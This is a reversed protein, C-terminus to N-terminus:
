VVVGINIIYQQSNKDVYQGEDFSNVNLNFKLKDVNLGKEKIDNIFKDEKGYYFIHMDKKLFTLIYNMNGDKEFVSSTYIKRKNISNLIISNIKNEIIICDDYQLDIKNKDILKQIIDFNINLYKRNINLDRAIESCIKEIYKPFLILQMDMTNKQLYLVKYRTIYHEINIPMDQLIEYNIYGDLDKKRVKPLDKYERIIM